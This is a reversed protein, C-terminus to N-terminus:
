HIAPCEDTCAADTEDRDSRLLENRVHGVIRQLVALRAGAVRGTGTVARLRLGARVLVALVRQGHLVQCRCEAIVADGNALRVVKNLASSRPVRWENSCNMQSM